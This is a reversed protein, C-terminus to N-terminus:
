KRLQYLDDLHNVNTAAAARVPVGCIATSDFATLLSFDGSVLRAELVPRAHQAYLGACPHPRDTRAWVALAAPNQEAARLLGGIDEARFCPMDGALVFLPGPCHLLASVIGGIPGVGPHLDPIIGDALEIIAPDCTGVLKVRRGFVGRLADIPYQVLARGGSGWPERLKDRGFRRSRGGVLVIPQVCALFESSVGPREITM